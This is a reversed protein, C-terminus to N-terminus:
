ARQDPDHARYKWWLLVIAHPPAEEGPHMLTANCRRGESGYCWRALHRRTCDRRVAVPMSAPSWAVGSREGERNPMTSSQCWCPLTLGRPHWWGALRLIARRGFALNGKVDGAATASPLGGDHRWPTPSPCVCRLRAASPRAQQQQRLTGAFLSATTPFPAQIEVEFDTPLYSAAYFTETRADHILPGRTSNNARHTFPAEPSPTSRRLSRCPTFLHVRQELGGVLDIMCLTSQDRVSPQNGVGRQRETAIFVVWM